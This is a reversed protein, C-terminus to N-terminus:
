IGEEPKAQDLEKAVVESILAQANFYNVTLALNKQQVDVTTLDSTIEPLEKSKLHVFKGSNALFVMPSIQGPELSENHTFLSPNFAEPPDRSTFDEFTEVTLGELLAAEAFSTEAALAADLATKIEEGRKDFLARREERRYDREVRSRNKGLEPIKSEIMNQFVLIAAGEDTQDVDSYYREQNLSHAADLATGSIWPVYPRSGQAYATILRREAGFQDILANFEPSDRNIRDKYLRVTFDVAAEAARRNARNKKWKETVQDIVDDFAVAPPTEDTSDVALDMPKPDAAIDPEVNADEEAEPVAGETAVSDEETARQAERLARWEKEFNEQYTALNEAFYAELDARSPDPVQDRYRDGLFVLASLQIKEREEYRFSNETYFEQLAEEEVEIAPQFISFDISAVDVSWITDLRVVQRSAEFPLIFGPGTMAEQLREIRFDDILSEAVQEQSLQPSADISDKFKTFVDESFKGSEDMFARKSRIYDRFDDPNPGPIGISKALALYATRILSLEQLQDQSQSRQGRNIWTSIEAGVLLSRVDRDSALNYGFFEVERLRQGSGSLGGGAPTITLVFAVIVVALLLFFLWKYHKQAHTQLWSIM